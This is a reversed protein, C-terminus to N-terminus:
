PFVLWISKINFRKQYYADIIKNKTQNIGECRYSYTSQKENLLATVKAYNKKM